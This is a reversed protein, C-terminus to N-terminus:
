DFHLYNRKNLNLQIWYKTLLCTGPVPTWTGSCPTLVYSFNHGDSCNQKSQFELRLCIVKDFPMWLSLTDSISLAAALASFICYFSHYHKHEIQRQLYTATQTVVHLMFYLCSMLLSWYTWVYRTHLLAQKWYAFTLMPAWQGLWATPQRNPLSIELSRYLDIACVPCVCLHYFHEMLPSSHNHDHVLQSYM